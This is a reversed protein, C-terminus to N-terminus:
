LRQADLLGQTLPLRFCLGLHAQRSDRYGQLIRSSTVQLFRMQLIISEASQATSFLDPDFNCLARRLRGVNYYWPLRLDPLM